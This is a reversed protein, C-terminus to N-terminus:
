IVEIEAKALGKLCSLSVICVISGGIFSVGHVCYM